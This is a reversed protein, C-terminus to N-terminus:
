SQREAVVFPIEGRTIHGDISLVVWRVKWQGAIPVDAHARLVGPSDNRSLALAREIGNPDVVAIRSRDADISANFRLLIDLPGAAVRANVAPTASVVIAHACAMTSALAFLVAITLTRMETCPAGSRRNPEGWSLSSRLRLKVESGSQPYLM